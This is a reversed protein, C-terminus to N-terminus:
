RYMQRDTELLQEIAEIDFPSPLIRPVDVFKGTQPDYVMNFLYRADELAEERQVGVWSKVNEELSKRVYNRGEEINQPLKRVWNDIKVLYNDNRGYNKVLNYPLSDFVGRVLLSYYLDNQMRM